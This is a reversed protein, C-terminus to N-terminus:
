AYVGWRFGYGQEWYDDRNGRRGRGGRGGRGGGGGGRGRERREGGGEPCERAFHGSGGCNYCGDGGTFSLFFIWTIAQCWPQYVICDWMLNITPLFSWKKKTAWFLGTQNKFGKENRDHWMWGCSLTENFLIQERQLSLIQSHPM